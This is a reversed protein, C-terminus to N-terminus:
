SSVLFLFLFRSLVQVGLLLTSLLFPGGVHPAGERAPVKAPVSPSGQLSLPSPLLWNTAALVSLWM